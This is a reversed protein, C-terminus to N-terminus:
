CTKEITSVYRLQSSITRCLQAITCLHRSKPSKKPGANGALMACCMESRSELNVSPGCWTDFYPLCGIQSPHSLALLFLLFFSVVPHFYLPRCRIGYPSWLSLFFFFSLFWLAFIYHGARNWLAAMSVAIRHLMFIRLLWSVTHLQWLAIRRVQWDYM